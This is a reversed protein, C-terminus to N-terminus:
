GPVILKFASAVIGSNLNLLARKAPGLEALSLADTVNMQGARPGNQVALHAYTQVLGAQNYGEGLIGAM